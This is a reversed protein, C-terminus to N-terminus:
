TICCEKGVRREESSSKLLATQLFITLNANVDIKTNWSAVNTQLALAINKSTVETANTTSLVMGAPSIWVYHPILRHPFAQHLLSDNTIFTMREKSILKNTKLFTNIRASDEYTIPFINAKEIFEHRLEDIKPMATVCSGCWTAWFDLIILKGRFDNLTITERGKFHNVVQLPLHWLYSLFLTTHTVITDNLKFKLPRRIM